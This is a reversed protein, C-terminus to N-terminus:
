SLQFDDLGDAAEEPETDIREAMPFLAPQNRLSWCAGAQQHDVAFRLRHPRRQTDRSEGFERITENETNRYVNLM